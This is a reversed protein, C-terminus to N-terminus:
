AQRVLVLPASDRSRITLTPVYWGSDGHEVFLRQRALAVAHQLSAGDALDQYLSQAFCALAPAPMGIQMAVVAPVGAASLAPAVGTLMGASGVMASQSAHLLALRPRGGLLAQLRRAPLWVGGGQPSDLLLEGQDEHYRGRGDFHLIDVPPGRQIAATLAAPTAPALVSARVQGTQELARWPQAREARAEPTLGADPLVALLHLREGRPRAPPLAQALDLYRVCGALRGQSLLLPQGGQSLSEWPLAALSAAQEPFRLALDLSHGHATALDRATRLAIEGERDATLHYYLTQGVRQSCDSRLRGGLWLGLGALLEQERPHFAGPEAGGHQEAELARLVLPLLGVDYPTRFSSRRLGLGDAEWMVAAGDAEPQFRLTLGVSPEPARPARRPPAPPTLARVLEAAVPDAAALRALASRIQATQEPSPGRLAAPALAGLQAQLMDALRRCRNRRVVDAPPEGRWYALLTQLVTDSLM